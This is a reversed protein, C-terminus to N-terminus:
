IDSAVKVEDRLCCCCCLRCNLDFCFSDDSCMIFGFSFCGAAGVAVTAVVVAVLVEAHLWCSVESFTTVKSMDM